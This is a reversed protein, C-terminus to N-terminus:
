LKISHIIKEDQQKIVKLFNKRAIALFYPLLTITSTRSPIFIISLTDATSTIITIVLDINM